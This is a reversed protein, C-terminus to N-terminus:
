GATNPSLCQRGYLIDNMSQILEGQSSDKQIYGDAGAKFVATLYEPSKHITFVLIKTEPWKKKIERTATIGDMRPMSLDMLVLDPRLKDVSDIAELGDQAEGGIEFENRCSLLSRLEQRLNANDDVILISHKEM